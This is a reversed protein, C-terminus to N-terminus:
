WGCLSSSVVELSEQGQHHLLLHPNLGAWRKTICALKPAHDQYQQEAVLSPQRKYLVIPSPIASIILARVASRISSRPCNNEVSLTASLQQHIHNIM